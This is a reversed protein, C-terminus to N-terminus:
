SAAEVREFLGRELVVWRQSVPCALGQVFVHLSQWLLTRMHTSPQCFDSTFLDSFTLHFSVLSEM